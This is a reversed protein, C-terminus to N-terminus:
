ENNREWKEKDYKKRFFDQLLPELEDYNNLIKQLNFITNMKELKCDTDHELIYKAENKLTNSLVTRLHKDM